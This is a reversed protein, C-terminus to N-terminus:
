SHPTSCVLGSTPPASCRPKPNCRFASSLTSFRRPTSCEVVQGPPTSRGAVPVKITIVSGLKTLYCSSHMSRFSWVWAPRRSALSRCGRGIAEARGDPGLGVPQLLPPLQGRESSSSTPRRRLRAQAARERATRPSTRAQAKCSCLLRYLYITSSAISLPPAPHGCLTPTPGRERRVIGVSLSVSSCRLLPLVFARSEGM